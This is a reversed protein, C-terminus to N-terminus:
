GRQRTLLATAKEIFNGHQELRNEAICVPLPCRIVSAQAKSSDSRLPRSNSILTTLSRPSPKLGVSDRGAIRGRGISEGAVAWCQEASRRVGVPYASQCFGQAAKM